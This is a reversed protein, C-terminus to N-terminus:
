KTMYGQAGGLLGGFVTIMFYSPNQAVGFYLVVSFIFGSVAGLIAMNRVRRKRHEDM